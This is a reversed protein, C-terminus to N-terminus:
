NTVVKCENITIICLPFIKKLGEDSKKFDEDFKKFDEDSKNLVKM